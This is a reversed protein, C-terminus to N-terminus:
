RRLVRIIRGNFEIKNMLCIIITFELFYAIYASDYMQLLVFCTLIFVKQPYDYEDSKKAFWRCIMPMLLFAFVGLNSILEAFLAPTMIAKSRYGLLNSTLFMSYTDVTIHAMNLFYDIPFLFLPMNLITQLPRDLMLSTDQHLLSYIALRARDDRLFDIRTTTYLEVADFANYGRSTIKVYMTLGIMISVAFVGLCILKFLKKRREAVTLEANLVGPIKILLVMLLAFFIISRKGEICVSTYLFIISLINEFIPHKKNRMLLIVISCAVGIYSMKEFYTYRAVVSADFFERWQLTYLIFKHSSAVATILTPLIMGLYLAALTGNTIENKNVKNQYEKKGSIRNSLLYIQIFIIVIDYIIRTTSDAASVSFGRGLWDTYVPPSFICDLYLPAVYFLYFLFYIIYKSEFAVKKFNKALLATSIIITIWDLWIVM